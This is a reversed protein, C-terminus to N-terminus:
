LSDEIEWTIYHNRFFYDNRFMLVSLFNYYLDLYYFKYGDETEWTACKM